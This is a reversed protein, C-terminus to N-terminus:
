FSPQVGQYGEETAIHWGDNRRLGIKFGGAGLQIKPQQRILMALMMPSQRDSSEMVLEEIADSYRQHHAYYQRQFEVLRELIAKPSGFEEKQAARSALTEQVKRSDLPGKGLMRESFSSKGEAIERVTNEACSVLWVSPVAAALGLLIGYAIPSLAKLVPSDPAAGVEIQRCDSLRDAISRGSRDFLLWLLTVPWILWAIINGALRQFLTGTDPLTVEASNKRVPAIRMLRQGYTLGDWKSPVYVLGLWLGVLSLSIRIILEYNEFRNVTRMASNLDDAGDLAINLFVLLVVMGLLIPGLMLFGLSFYTAVAALFRRKLSATPTRESHAPLTIDAPLTFELSMLKLPGPPLEDFHLANPNLKATEEDPESAAAVPRNKPRKLEAQRELYKAIILGCAPCVGQAILGDQPVRARYHCKPCETFAAPAALPQTSPPNSAPASESPLPDLALAPNAPKKDLSVSATQSSAPKKDLSLTGATTAPTSPKVVAAIENSPVLRCVLGAHKMAGQYRYAAEPDLARRLVYPKGSFLVEAQDPEQRLLKALNRRADEPSYGDAVRGEFILDYRTDM